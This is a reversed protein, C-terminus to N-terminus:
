SIGCRAHFRNVEQIDTMYANLQQHLYEFEAALKEMAMNTADFSMQM